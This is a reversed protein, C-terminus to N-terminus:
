TPCLTTSKAVAVGLAAMLFIRKGFHFAPFTTLSLYNKVDQNPM